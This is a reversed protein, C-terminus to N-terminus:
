NNSLSHDKFAVSLVEFENAFSVRKGFDRSLSNSTDLLVRLEKSVESGLDILQLFVGVRKHSCSANSTSSFDIVNHRSPIPIKSFEGGEVEFVEVVRIFDQKLEELVAELLVLLLCVKLVL